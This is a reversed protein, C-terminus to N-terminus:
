HDATTAELASDILQGSIANGNIREFQYIVIKGMNWDIGIDFKEWFIDTLPM